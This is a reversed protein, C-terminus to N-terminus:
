FFIITILLCFIAPRLILSQTKLPLRTGHIILPFVGVLPLLGIIIIHYSTINVFLILISCLGLLMDVQRPWGQGHWVLWAVTVLFPLVVYRPTSVLDFGQILWMLVTIATVVLETVPYIAPIRQKGCACKGKQYIWSLVPVLERARLTRGCPPCMSRVPRGDPHHSYPLGRPLRYILATTFSGMTLGTAVVFLGEILFWAGSIDPGM